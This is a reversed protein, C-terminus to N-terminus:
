SVFSSVCAPALAVACCAVPAPSGREALRVCVSGISQSQLLRAASCVSITSPFTAAALRELCRETPLFRATQSARRGERSM